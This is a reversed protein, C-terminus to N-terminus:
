GSASCAGAPRRCPICRSPSTGSRRRKATRPRRGRAWEGVAFTLISRPSSPIARPRKGPGSPDADVHPRRQSTCGAPWARGGCVGSVVGVGRGWDAPATRCGAAAKLLLLLLIPLLLAVVVVLLLRRSTRANPLRPSTSSTASARVLVCSPSRMSKLLRLKEMLDTTRDRRAPGAAEAPWSQETGAPGLSTNMDCCAWSMGM